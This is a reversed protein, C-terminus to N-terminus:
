ENSAWKSGVQEHIFEIGMFAIAMCAPLPGHPTSPPPQWNNNQCCTFLDTGGGVSVCLLILLVRRSQGYIEFEDRILYEHSNARGEHVVAATPLHHPHHKIKMATKAPATDQEQENDDDEGQRIIIIIIM